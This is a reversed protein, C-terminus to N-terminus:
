ELKFSYAGFGDDVDSGVTLTYPGGLTLTKMGPDLAGLYSDFIETGNADVLRFGVLGVDPDRAL